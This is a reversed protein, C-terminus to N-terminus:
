KMSSILIWSGFTRFLLGESATEKFKSVETAGLDEASVVM